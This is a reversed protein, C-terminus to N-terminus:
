NGYKEMYKMACKIGDVASSSIGGAYGSGEGCPYVGSHNVAELTTNDRLIRVASSTRTEPATLVANESFYGKLIKDFENIGAKIENNIFDPFLKNLDYEIIKGTYSPLISIGSINSKHLYGTKNRMYDGLTQVPATFDKNEIGFAQKEINKRFEFAGIVTGGYDEPVISVAVAANANGGARNSYSMGNTVIAGNESASNVVTGGPCM